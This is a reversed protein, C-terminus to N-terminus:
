RVVSEKIKNWVKRGVIVEISELAALVDGIRIRVVYESVEESGKMM